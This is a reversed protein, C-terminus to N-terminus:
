NLIDICVGKLGGRTRQLIEAKIMQIRECVICM